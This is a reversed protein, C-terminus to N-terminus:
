ETHHNIFEKENSFCTVTDIKIASFDAGLLREAMQFIFGQELRDMNRLMQLAGYCHSQNKGEVIRGNTAGTTKHCSFTGTGNVLPTSIGIARDKGLWGRSSDRRFPCDKCTKKLNLLM